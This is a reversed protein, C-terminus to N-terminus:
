FVMIQEAVRLPNHTTSVFGCSIVPLQETANAIWSAMLGLDNSAEFGEIQLHHEPQGIGHWGNRDAYKAIDSIETLMRQYYDNNLGALGSELEERRGMTCYMFLDFKM